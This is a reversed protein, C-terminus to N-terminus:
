PQTSARKAQLIRELALGAARGAIAFHEDFGVVRRGDGYLVAVVRDRVAIPLILVEGPASGFTDAVFKQSAEDALVGRYPLRTGVVDQLTSPQELALTPAPGAAAPRQHFPSLAGNKLALFAVREHSLALYGLLTDIVQDRSTARDLDRLLEVLKTSAQELARVQALPDIPAVALVPVIGAVPPGGVLLQPTEESDDAALPITEMKGSQETGPMAGLFPPPITTGPPGWGDDVDLQPPLAHPKTSADSEKDEMVTPVGDAPTSASWPRAGAVEAVAVQDETATATATTTTTPQSVSPAKARPAVAPLGVGVVTKKPERRRQAAKVAGGVADAINDAPVTGEEIPPPESPKKRDLLVFPEESDEDTEPQTEKLPRKQVLLIPASEETSAVDHIVAPEDEVSEADRETSAREATAREASARAAHWAAAEWEEDDDPKAIEGTEAEDDSIPRMQEDAVTRGTDDQSTISVVPTQDPTEPEPEDDFLVVVAPGDDVLTRADREHVEVEGARAALEPPDPEVQRRPPLGRPPTREDGHLLSVYGAGGSPGSTAPAVEVVAYPESTEPATAVPTAQAEAAAAAAASAKQEAPAKAEAAEVKALDDATPTLLKDSPRPLDAPAAGSVPPLVKHRSAEVRGTFGRVRPMPNAPAAADKAPTAPAVAGGGAASPKLLRRGLETIHGYYHALCWAIQMQTAVARVVYKSTFFGIEDVAHSDSPDSMACTLNGERDLAVPVCRFEIAMDLPIAEVVNAPLRALTNPNVRPVLLRSRYFETLAEDAVIGSLVLHEGITGGEQARSARAALLAQDTILGTRVLLAGADDAM